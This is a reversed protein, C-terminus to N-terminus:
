PCGVFAARRGAIKDSDYGRRMKCQTTGDLAVSACNTAAQSVEAGLSRDRSFKWGRSFFGRYRVPAMAGYNSLAESDDNFSCFITFVIMPRAIQAIRTIAEM